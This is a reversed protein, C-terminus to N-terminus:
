GRMRARVRTALRRLRRQVRSAAFRRRKADYRDRYLDRCRWYEDWDRDDPTTHDHAFWPEPQRPVVVDYGALLYRTSQAVDYFHFGDIGEDWPLDHQTILCLGDVAEVREVAGVPEERRLPRKAGNEIELVHGVVGSGDWWVCSEPLYRAGMAGILAISPNRFIQLVDAILNRNLIVVDQHVYAKHRWSRADALLHNYAQPLTPAGRTEFLRVDFGEPCHLEKISGRLREVKEDDTVSCLFALGPRTM